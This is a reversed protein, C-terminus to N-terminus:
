HGGIGPFVLKVAQAAIASSHGSVVSIVAAGAAAAVTTAFTTLGPMGELYSFDRLKGRVTVARTHRLFTMLDFAFGLTLFLLLIALANGLAIIAAPSEVAWYPLLCLMAAVSVILGKALGSPGRISRFMFGFFFAALATKGFGAVVSAFLTIFFAADTLASRGASPIVALAGVVAFPIAIRLALLGNEFDTACPGFALAIQSAKLGGYGHLESTRQSVYAGFQALRSTYDTITIEGKGLKTGVQDEADLVEDLRREAIADRLRQARADDSLAAIADYRVREKVPRLILRPYVLLALLFPVPLVYISLQSGVVYSAFLFLGFAPGLARTAPPSLRQLAIVGYYGIAYPAVAGLMFLVTSSRSLVDFYQPYQRVDVDDWNVGLLVWSALAFLLVLVIAEHTRERLPAASRRTMIVFPLLVAISLVITVLAVDILFETQSATKTRREALVDALVLMVTCLCANYLLARCVVNTTSAFARPKRAFYRAALFCALAVVFGIGGDLLVNHLASRANGWEPVPIDAFTRHRAFQLTFLTPPALVITMLAIARQAVTLIQRDDERTSGRPKRSGALWAILVMPIALIWALADGVILAYEQPADFASALGPPIQLFHRLHSFSSLANFQLSLGIPTPTTQASFHRFWKYTKPFGVADPVPSLATVSYDRVAIRLSEATHPGADRQLRGPDTLDITVDGSLAPLFSAKRSTDTAKAVFTVRGRSVTFRPISREFAAAVPTRNIQMGGLMDDLFKSFSWEGALYARARGDDVPVTIRVDGTVTQYGLVLSVDRVVDRAPPTMHGMVRCSSIRSKIMRWGVRTTARVDIDNLGRRVGVRSLSFGNADASSPAVGPRPISAITGAPENNVLVDVTAPAGTTGYLDVTWVGARADTKCTLALSLPPPFMPRVIIADIFPWGALWIVVVAMAALVFGLVTRKM